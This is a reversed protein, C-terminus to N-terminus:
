PRKLGSVAAAAADIEANPVCSSTGPDCRDLCPEPPPQCTQGPPCLEPCPPRCEQGEPCGGGPPPPPTRHIFGIADWMYGDIRRWADGLDRLAGEINDCTVANGGREALCAAEIIGRLNEQAPYFEHGMGRELPVGDKDQNVIVNGALQVALILRFFEPPRIKFSREWMSNITAQDAPLVVAQDMGVIRFGRRNATAVFQWAFSIMTRENLGNRYATASWQIARPAYVHYEDMDALAHVYSGHPGILAPYAEPFPELYPLTRNISLLLDRASRLFMEVTQVRSSQPRLVRLQAVRSLASGYSDIAGDLSGFATAIVQDRPRTDIVDASTDLGGMQFMFLATRYPADTSYFAVDAILSRVDDGHENRLVSALWDVSDYAYLSAQVAKRLETKEPDTYEALARGGSSLWFLLAVALRYKNRM